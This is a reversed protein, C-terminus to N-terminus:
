LTVWVAGDYFELRTSDTNFIVMGALATLANRQATTMNSARFAKTTGGIELGVSSNTVKKTATAISISKEFHNEANPDDVSIAWANTPSASSFFSPVHIGRLNTINLAGGANQMGFVKITTCDVVTGGTSQVPFSGGAFLSVYSDVTKGAVVGLQGGAGMAVYGVGIPGTADMDDEFLAAPTMINNLFDTGTIPSGAAVSFVSFFVNGTDVGFGSTTSLNSNCNIIGDNINLGYKKSTSALGTLDVNIGNVQPLTATGVPSINLGQYNADGANITQQVNIGTVNGHSTTITGYLSLGVFASAAGMTTITPNFFFGNVVSTAGM